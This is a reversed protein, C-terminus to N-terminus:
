EDFRRKLCIPCQAGCSNKGSGECAVCDKFAVYREPPTAVASGKSSREVLEQAVWKSAIAAHEPNKEFGVAGRSLRLAAVVVAGSGVFPDLVVEGQLTSQRILISLLEQPKQFPHKRKASGISQVKILAPMNKELMRKRPPKWGFLIPEVCPQYLYGRGPAMAKGKHWLVPYEQLELGAALVEARLTGYLQQCHFIYFHGGPVLTRAVEPLLWKLLKAVAEPTSNDDEALSQKYPITASTQKGGLEEIGFPPDTLVCAVSESAVDRLLDRSDGVRVHGQVVLGARQAAEAEEIRAIRRIAANMPMDGVVDRLEPRDVLKQAIRIERCVTSVTTGSKKATDESTWALEGRKDALGRQLLEYQRLGEAREQWSLSSRQINEELELLKQEDPPLDGRIEVPVETAGLLVLARLRREGAVLLLKDPTEEDPVVTLPNDLGFRGISEALEQLDKFESRCREGTRISGLPVMKYKGRAANVIVEKAM